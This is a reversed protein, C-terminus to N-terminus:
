MNWTNISAFLAVSKGVCDQLTELLHHVKCNCESCGLGGHWEFWDYLCLGSRIVFFFWRRFGLHPRAFSWGYCASRGQHSIDRPYNLCGSPWAARWMGQVIRIRSATRYGLSIWSGTRVTLFWSMASFIEFTLLQPVELVLLQHRLYPPSPM